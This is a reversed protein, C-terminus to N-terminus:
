RLGLALSMGLLVMVVGAVAAFKRDGATLWGAALVAVRLLPTVMSGLLGLDILDVGSGRAAAGIVESLPPPSGKPRRQGEALALILGLALLFGSAAVGGLLTWHVWRELRPPDSTPYM